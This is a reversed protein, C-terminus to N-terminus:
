RPRIYPERASVYGCGGNSDRHNFRLSESKVIGSQNANRTASPIPPAGDILSAANLWVQALQIYSERVEEKHAERAWGFCEEAMARYDSATKM